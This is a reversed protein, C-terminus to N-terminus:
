REQIPASSNSEIGLDGVTRLQSPVPGYGTYNTRPMPIRESMKLPGVREFLRPFMSGQAATDTTGLPAGRMFTNVAGEFAADGLKVKALRGKKSTNLFDQIGKTDFTIENSAAQGPKFGQAIMDLAQKGRKWNDRAADFLQGAQGSPEIKDLDAKLTQLAESHADRAAMQTQKWDGPAVGVPPRYAKDYLLGLEKRAQTFTVLTSPDAPSQVMKLNFTGPAKQILNDIQGYAQEQQAKLIQLGEPMAEKGRGIISLARLKEPTDYGAFSPNVSSKLWQGAAQADGRGMLKGLMGAGVESLLPSSLPASPNFVGKGANTLNEMPSESPNNMMNGAAMMGMRTVFPTVPGTGVLPLVTGLPPAQPNKVFERAGRLIDSGMQTINSVVRGPTKLAEEKVIQGFTSRKPEVDDPAPPLEDPAPPLNDIQAAM